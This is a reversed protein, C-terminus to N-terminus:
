PKPCRLQEKTKRHVQIPAEGGYGHFWCTRDSLHLFEGPRGIAPPLGGGRSYTLNGFEVRTITKEM